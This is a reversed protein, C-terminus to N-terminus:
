LDIPSPRVWCDVDHHERTGAPYSIKHDKDYREVLYKM